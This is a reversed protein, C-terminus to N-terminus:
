EDQANGRPQGPRVQGGIPGIEDVQVDVDTTRGGDIVRAAQVVVDIRVLCRIERQREGVRRERRDDEVRQV